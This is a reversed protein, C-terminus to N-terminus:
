FYFFPPIFSGAANCCCIVTTLVGRELSSVIGVQRKGLTTLIKPPRNTSTKVGTEDMNYVRAPQIKNKPMEEELLDLLRTVQTKNFGKIRAISTPEPARLVISPNRKQSSKFWCQGAVDDKFSTKKNIAKAFQGALQM